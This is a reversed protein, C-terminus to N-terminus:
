PNPDERAIYCSMGQGRCMDRRTWGNAAIALAILAVGVVFGGFVFRPDVDSFDGPNRPHPQDFLAM